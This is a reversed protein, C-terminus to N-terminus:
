CQERCALGGQITELLGPCVTAAGAVGSRLVCDAAAPESSSDSHAPRVRWSEFIMRSGLMM